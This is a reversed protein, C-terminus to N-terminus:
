GQCDVEEAVEACLFDRVWVRGVLGDAAQAGEDDAAYNGDRVVFPEHEQAIVEVVRRVDRTQRDLDADVLRDERRQEVRIEETHLSHETTTPPLIHLFPDALRNRDTPDIAPLDPRRDRRETERKHRRLITTNKRTNDSNTPLSIKTPQIHPSRLLILSPQSPRGFRSHHSIISPQLLCSPCLAPSQDHPIHGQYFGFILTLVYPGPAGSFFFRAMSLRVTYVHNM